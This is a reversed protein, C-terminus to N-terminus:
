ALSKPPSGMQSKSLKRYGVTDGRLTGIKARIGTGHFDGAAESGSNQYTHPQSKLRGKTQKGVSPLKM